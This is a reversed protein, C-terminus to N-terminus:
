EWGLVRFVEDQVATIDDDNLRPDIVQHRAGTRADRLILVDVGDTNRRSDEFKLRKRRMLLLAVVYRFNLRNPDETAASLHDFWDLLLADNITPKVPRDSAPIRGSWYAIANPPPGGWAGVSFDRRVFKGAEDLLVGYFREGVTLDKGTAACTRTPGQVEFPTM